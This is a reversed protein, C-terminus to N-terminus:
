LQRAISRSWKKTSSCYPTYCLRTTFSRWLQRCLRFQRVFQLRENNTESYITRIQV